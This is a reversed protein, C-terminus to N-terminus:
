IEIKMLNIIKWLVIKIGMEYYSLSSLLELEIDEDIISLNYENKLKKIQEIYTLFPKNYKISM